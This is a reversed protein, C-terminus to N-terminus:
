AGCTPGAAGIDAVTQEYAVLFRAPRRLIRL